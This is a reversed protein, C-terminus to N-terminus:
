MQQASTYIQIESYGIEQAIADLLELLEPSANIKCKESAEYLYTRHKQMIVKLLTKETPTSAQPLQRYTTELVAKEWFFYAHCCFNYALNISEKTNCAIDLRRLALQLLQETAQNPLSKYVNEEASNLFERSIMIAAQAQLTSILTNLMPHILAMNSSALITELDHLNDMLENVKIKKSLISQARTLIKSLKAIVQSKYESLKPNADDTMYAHAIVEHIDTIRLRTIELDTM